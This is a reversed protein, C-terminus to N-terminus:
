SGAGREVAALQTAIAHRLEGVTLGEGHPIAQEDPLAGLLRRAHALAGRARARDRLQVYARGLSFSALVNGADLFTARRLSEIAWETAGVDLRLLGLLLHTEADLPRQRVLEEAQTCAAVRDGTRALALVRDLAPAAREPHDTATATAPPTPRPAAPRGTTARPRSPRAPAPTPLTPEPLRPAPPQVARWASRRRWLVAGPLYVPEFPGPLEPVPDSPGLVLWGDDVLADAFRRYAQRIAEAGFYITVNRCLILDFAARRPAPGGVSELSPIPDALLNMPAFQVM